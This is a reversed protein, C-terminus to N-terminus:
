PKLFVCFYFIKSSGSTLHRVKGGVIFRAVPAIAERHPADQYAIFFRFGAPFRATVAINYVRALAVNREHVGWGGLREGASRPCDPLM